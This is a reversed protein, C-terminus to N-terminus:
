SKLLLLIIYIAKLVYILLNLYKTISIPSVFVRAVKWISM